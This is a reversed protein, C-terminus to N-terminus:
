RTTGALEYPPLSVCRRWGIRRRVCLPACSLPTPGNPLRACPLWFAARTVDSFFRVRLVAARFLELRRLDVVAVFFISMVADVAAHSKSEVSVVNECRCKGRKKGQLERRHIADDTCNAPPDRAFGNNNSLTMEFDAQCV